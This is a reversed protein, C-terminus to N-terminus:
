CASTASSAFRNFRRASREAGVRFGAHGQRPRVRQEREAAADLFWSGIAPRGPTESLFRVKAGIHIDSSTRTRTATSIAAPARAARGASARHHSLKQYLGGTSRSRPLRASASASASRRCPSCTAACARCRSISMARQLRRRGRDPHPRRRDNRSRRDAATTAARVRARACLCRWCDPRRISSNM